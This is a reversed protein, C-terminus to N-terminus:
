GKAILKTLAETLMKITDQQSVVVNVLKDDNPKVPKEDGFNPKATVTTLKINNKNLEEKFERYFADIFAESPERKRNLYESISGKNLGTRRHIEAVPFRLGLKELDKYFLEIQAKDLM